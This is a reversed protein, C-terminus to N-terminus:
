MEDYKIHKNVEQRKEGDPLVTPRDRKRHMKYPTHVIDDQDMHIFSNMVDIIDKPVYENMEGCWDNQYVYKALLNKIFTKRHMIDPMDSM